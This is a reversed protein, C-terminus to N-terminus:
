SNTISSIDNQNWDNTSNAGANNNNNNICDNSNESTRRGGVDNDNEMLLSPGDAGTTAVGVAGIGVGTIGESLSGMSGRRNNFNITGTDQLLHIRGALGLLSDRRDMMMNNENIDNNDSSSERGTTGGGTTRSYNTNSVFPTTGIGGLFSDNHITSDRRKRHNDDEERHQKRIPQWPNTVNDNNTNTTNVSPLATDVADAAAFVTPSQTIHEEGGVGGDMIVKDSGGDNDDDDITIVDRRLPLQSPSEVRQTAM